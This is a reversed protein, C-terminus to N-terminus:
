QYYAATATQRRKFFMIIAMLLIFGIELEVLHSIVFNTHSFSSTLDPIVEQLVNSLIAVIYAYIFSMVFLAVYFVPNHEISLPLVICILASFAFYGFVIMWDLWHNTAGPTVFALSENVSASGLNTLAEYTPGWFLSIAIVGIVISAFAGIFYIKDTLSM